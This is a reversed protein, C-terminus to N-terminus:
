QFVSFGLIIFLFYELFAIHETRRFYKIKERFKLGNLLGFMEFPM